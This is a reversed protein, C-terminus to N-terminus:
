KLLYIYLIFLVRLRRTSVLVFVSRIWFQPHQHQQVYRAPCLSRTCECSPLVKRRLIVDHSDGRCHSMCCDFIRSLRHMRDVQLVVIRGFKMGIPAQSIQLAGGM